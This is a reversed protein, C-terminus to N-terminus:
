VREMPRVAQTVTAFDIHAGLRNSAGSGDSDPRKEALRQLLQETVAEFLPTRGPIEIGAHDEVMM